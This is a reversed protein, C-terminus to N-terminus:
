KFVEPMEARLQDRAVNRAVEPAEIWVKFSRARNEILKKKLLKNQAEAKQARKRYMKNNNRLITDNKMLARNLTVLNQNDEGLEEIRAAQADENDIEPCPCEHCRM